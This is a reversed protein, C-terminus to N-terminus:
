SFAAISDTWPLAAGQTRMEENLVRGGLEEVVLHDHQGFEAQLTSRSGCRARLPLVNASTCFVEAQAGRFPACRPRPEAVRLSKEM